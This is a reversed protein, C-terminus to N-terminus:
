EYRRSRDLFSPSKFGKNRGLNKELDERSKKIPVYAQRSYSWEWANYGKPLYGAPPPPPGGNFNPLMLNEVDWMMQPLFKDDTRQKFDASPVARMSGDSNRAWTYSTVAGAEKGTRGPESQGLEIPNVKVNVKGNFDPMPDNSGTPMPPGVQTKNLKAIQSRLLDNELEGRELALAIMRADNRDKGSRTADIARGIDQGMNAMASTDFTDGFAPQYPMTQAGLAALPAIGARKADEVKWQIGHQAFDQQLQQEKKKANRNLLGSVLSSGAALLEGWM